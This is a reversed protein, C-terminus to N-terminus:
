RGGGEVGDGESAVLGLGPGVSKELRDARWEVYAAAHHVQGAAFSLGGLDGRWGRLEEVMERMRKVADRENM